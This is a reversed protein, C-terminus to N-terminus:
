AFGKGVCFTTGQCGICFACNMSGISFVSNLSFISAFGNVVLISFIGNLVVIGLVGNFSLACWAANRSWWSRYGMHCQHMTFPAPTAAQEEAERAVKSYDVDEQAAQALLADDPVLVQEEGAEEDTIKETM